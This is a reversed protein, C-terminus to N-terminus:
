LSAAIAEKCTSVGECCRKGVCVYSHGKLTLQEGKLSAKAEGIRGFNKM